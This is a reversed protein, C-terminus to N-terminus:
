FVVRSDTDTIGANHRRLWEVFEQVDTNRWMWSPFRSLARWGSPSMTLDRVYHDVRAADPWHSETAVMTFGKHEILAQTVRARFSYFGGTGHSAEGILVM